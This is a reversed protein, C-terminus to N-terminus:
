NKKKKMIVSVVIWGLSVLLNNKKRREGKKRERERKKKEKRERGNLASDSHSELRRVLLSDAGIMKRSQEELSIPAGDDNDQRDDCGM